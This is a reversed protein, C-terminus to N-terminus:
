VVYVGGARRFSKLVLPDTLEADIQWEMPSCGGGFALRRWTVWSGHASWVRCACPRVCRGLGKQLVERM